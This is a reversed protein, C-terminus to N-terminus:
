TEGACQDRILTLISGTTSARTSRFLSGGSFSRGAAQAAPRWRNVLRLIGRWGLLPALEGRTRRPVRTALLSSSRDLMAAVVLGTRTQRCRDVLLDWDIADHTACAHVDMASRAALPDWRLAHLCVHILNDVADLAPFSWGAATVVRRRSLMETTDIPFADRLEPEHLTHTQLDVSANTRHELITVEAPLPYASQVLRRSPNELLVSVVLDRRDDAVLVDVDTYYRQRGDRRWLEALWPGKLIAFSAGAAELENTVRAAEAEVAICALAEARSLDRGISRALYRPTNTAAEHTGSM